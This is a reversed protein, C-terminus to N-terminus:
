SPQGSSPDDAQQAKKAQRRQKKAERRNEASNVFAVEPNAAQLQAAVAQLQARMDRLDDTGWNRLIIPISSLRKLAPRPPMYLVQNDAYDRRLSWAYMDAAQLPLFTADDRFIPPSGLFSPMDTKSTQQAIQKYSPWLRLLEDSFGCQEDFVFDCPETLGVIPSMEAVYTMLSQALLVYPSDSTLTRLPTPLSKIYQNFEDHRISTSVRVLAHDCVIDALRAVRVDRLAETWGNRRDFAGALAMADKMKFPETIPPERVLPRWANSFEAWGETSSVFGALVFLPGSSGDSGSDDIFAQLPM